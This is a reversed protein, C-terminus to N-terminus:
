IAVLVLMTATKHVLFTLGFKACQILNMKDQNFIPYKRFTYM